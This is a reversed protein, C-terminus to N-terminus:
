RSRLKALPKSPPKINSRRIADFEAREAPTMSRSGELIASALDGWTAVDSRTEVAVAEAESPLTVTTVGGTPHARMAMGSHGLLRAQLEVLRFDLERISHVNALM